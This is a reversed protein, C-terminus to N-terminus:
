QSNGPICGVLIEKYYNNWEEANTAVGAPRTPFLEKCTDEGLFEIAFAHFHDARRRTKDVVLVNPNQRDPKLEPLSHNCEIGGNIINLTKGFGKVGEEVMVNHCTKEPIFESSNYMTWFWFGSAFAAEPDRLIQDPDDLLAMKDGYFFESFRGYNANWSLQIPGRGFFCGDSIPPCSPAVTPLYDRAATGSADYYRFSNCIRENEKIREDPKMSDPAEAGRVGVEEYFCLGWSTYGGPADPWGGTTEQAWNALIAALELKKNTDDAQSIFVKFEDKSDLGKVMNEYSYLNQAADKISSARGENAHPFLTKFKEETFIKKLRVSAAEQASEPTDMVSVQISDIGLRNGVPLGTNDSVGFYFIWEGASLPMTAIKYSNIEFLPGSYSRRIDNTWWLTEAVWSYRHNPAQYPTQCGVWWDVDRGNLIGPSMSLELTVMEHSGTVIPGDSGNIKIDPVAPGFYGQGPMEPAPGFTGTAWVSGSLAAMLVFVMATFIKKM